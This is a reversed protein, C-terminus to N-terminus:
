NPSPYSIVGYNGATLTDRFRIYDLPGLIVQDIIIKSSFSRPISISDQLYLTLVDDGFKYYVPLEKNIRISGSDNPDATRTTSLTLSHHNGTIGWVRTRFYLSDGQSGGIAITTDMRNPEDAPGCRILLFACLASYVIISKRTHM